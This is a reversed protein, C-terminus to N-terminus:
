KLKFPVQSKIPVQFNSESKGNFRVNWSIDGYRHVRASVRVRRAQRLGRWPCLPAWVHTHWVAAGGVRVQSYSTTDTNDFTILGKLLLNSLKQGNKVNKSM